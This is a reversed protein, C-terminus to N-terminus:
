PGEPRWISGFKKGCWKKPFYLFQLLLWCPAHFTCFLAWWAPGCTPWNTPGMEPRTCQKSAIKYEVSKTQGLVSYIYGEPLKTIPPHLFVSYV